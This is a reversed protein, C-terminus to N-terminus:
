FGYNGHIYTSFRLLYSGSQKSASARGHPVRRHLIRGRQVRMRGPQRRHHRYENRRHQADRDLRQRYSRPHRVVMQLITLLGFTTPFATLVWTEDLIIRYKYKHKIEILRLLDVVEGTYEFLAETIIFRRTLPREEKALQSLVRELDDLDNHNFWRVISRSAHIGKRIPFNVARDAVIIDGRKCFASIMSSITSFSQAYIIASETGFHSAIDEELKLHVDFTGYFGPASCPGTGYTRLTGVASDILKQDGSLNHHNYNALNTVTRGDSLKTRPGSSADRHLVPLNADLLRLEPKDEVLSEPSWEDVLDEIEEESLSMHKGDKDPSYSKAMLYRLALLLLLLEVISRAIDNQHSSRVYRVIVASGPIAHFGQTVQSALRLAMDLMTAPTELM